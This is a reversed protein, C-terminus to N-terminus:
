DAYVRFKKMVGTKVIVQILVVGLVLGFVGQVCNSPINALTPIWGYQLIVAEFLYYGWVMIMEAALGSVVFGPLRSKGGTRRQQAVDQQAKPRVAVLETKGGTRRQQAVDQQAKPRVADSKKFFAHVLLAAAVAMLGKIILTAPIYQAFGTLLDALASGIGGAVFGYWPGLIWAAVLVFCDGLNLFGVIPAPIQIVMTAVCILATFMGTVCLKIIQEKKM